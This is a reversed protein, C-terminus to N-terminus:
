GGEPAATVGAEPVPKPKASRRRPSWWRRGNSQQEQIQYDYQQLYNYYYYGGRRAAVKNMVVGLLNAGVQELQTKAQLAAGISTTGSDVVLLVGDVLGAMVVPDTVALVPPSDIILVDSTENLKRLLDRMKDSGLLESPNPPLSGSSLLSLYKVATDQLAADWSPSQQLMLDTLGNRNSRELLKHTTPRRLDADVIIVRLGAQAMVIALNVAITTKGEAPGPSSVLLTNIKKDVGAFQISTRLARYAEAVPARPEAATIAGNRAQGNSLRGIAGIVPVGLMALVQDPSRISDDLYEILFVVGVALMLGVVAALATNLLTRPRVPNDPVQAPEVIIVNSISQAEALRINEFSQLLSTYSQRFQALEDQLRNLSTEQTTTQPEGITEVALQVEDIQAELSNLQETLSVKSANYRSTQLAENQRRFVEPLLNALRAALVRDEDEVTLEILQTDRVLQVEVQKALDDAPRVLELIQIAEDLVPRRTLLESYTRALRESTLLATYDSVQTSPAEDILLTASAAYVPTTIQSTVYASVGALITGLAILWAWRWLIAAYQKLEM